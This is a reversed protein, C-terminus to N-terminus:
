KQAQYLRQVTTFLFKNTGTGTVLLYDRRGVQSQCLVNTTATTFFAQPSNTTLTAITNTIALDGTVRQVTATDATASGYMGLEAIECGSVDGPPNIFIKLVNNGGGPMTDYTRVPLFSAAFASMSAFVIAFLILAIKKM